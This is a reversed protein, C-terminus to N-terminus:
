CWGRRCASADLNHQIFGRAGSYPNVEVPGWQGNGYYQRWYRGDQSTVYGTGQTRRTPVWAYNPHRGWTQPQLYPKFNYSQNPRPVLRPIQVFRRQQAEAESPGSVGELGMLTAAITAISMVQRFM